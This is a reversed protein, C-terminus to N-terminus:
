LAISGGYSTGALVFTPPAKALVAKVNAQMTPESLMMVQAEVTDGLQQILERYMADNSLLAPILVVPTPTAAMSRAGSAPTPDNSAMIPRAATGQWGSATHWEPALMPQRRRPSAVM